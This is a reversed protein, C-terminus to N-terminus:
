VKLLIVACADPEHTKMRIQEIEDSSFRKKKVVYEDGDKELTGIVGDKDKSKLMVDEKGLLDRLYRRWPDCISAEKPLWGAKKGISQWEQENMVLNEKKQSAEKKIRM